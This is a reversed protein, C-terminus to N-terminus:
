IFMENFERKMLPKLRAKKLQKVLENICRHFVKDLLNLKYEQTQEDSMGNIQMDQTEHWFDVGALCQSISVLAHFQEFNDLVNQASKPISDWVERVLAETEQHLTVLTFHLSEDVDQYAILKQLEPSLTDLDVSQFEQETM